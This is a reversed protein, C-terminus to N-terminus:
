YFRKFPEVATLTNGSSRDAAMSGMRRPAPDAPFTLRPSLLHVRLARSRCCSFRGARRSHDTRRRHKTGGSSQRDGRDFVLLLSGSNQPYRVRIDGRPLLNEICTSCIVSGTGNAHRRYYDATEAVQWSLEGLPRTKQAVRSRTVSIIRVCPAEAPGAPVHWRISLVSGSGFNPENKRAEEVRCARPEVPTM